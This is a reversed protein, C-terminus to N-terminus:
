SEVVSQSSSVLRVREPRSGEALGACWCTFKELLGLHSLCFWLATSVSQRDQVGMRLSVSDGVHISEVLWTLSAVCMAVRSLLPPRGLTPTNVPSKPSVVGGSPGKKARIRKEFIFKKLFSSMRFSNQLRGGTEGDALHM